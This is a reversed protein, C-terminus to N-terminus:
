NRAIADPTVSRERHGPKEVQQLVQSVTGGVMLGGSANVQVTALRAGDSVRQGTNEALPGSFPGIVGIRIVAEPPTQRSCALASCLIWLASLVIILQWPRPKSRNM